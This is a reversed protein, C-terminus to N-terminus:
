SIAKVHIEVFVCHVPENEDIYYTVGTMLHVAKVSRKEYGIVMFINGNYDFKEGTHFNGAPVSKMPTRHDVIKTNM